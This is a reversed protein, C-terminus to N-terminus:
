KGHRRERSNYDKIIELLKAGTFDPWYVEPFALQTEDALLSMFGASNHPDEWSGTRIVLDLEPLHGTWSRARLLQDTPVDSKTDTLLSHVAATRERTGSYDILLTLECSKHHATKQMAEDFAEVTGKTLSDRWEGIVNIRVDYKDIIPHESFRHVNNRFARDIGTFFDSSRDALNAHSSGWLSLHTVGNEFAYETVDVLCEIATDYLKRYGKIGHQKAWRRNGDPIIALHFSDSSMEVITRGTDM